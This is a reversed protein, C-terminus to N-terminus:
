RIAKRFLEVVESSLVGKEILVKFLDQNIKMGKEIDTSSFEISEVGIATLAELAEKNEAITQDSTEQMAKQVIESVTVQDEASIKDWEKKSVLFAGISYTVPYNVIYKIKSNWQLALIGMPSNYAAEIIGTSLSPLVDPLALPVSILQLQEVMAQAVKDGEWSWVKVGQLEKISSIKKTSVLYIKGIEFFGLNKFGNEEIGKNLFPGLKQLAKKFLNRNHQFNFPVELVRIDSYIDGLARGTFISGSLQGIRVKRLVDPEDGQVGGYYVKLKVRSSTQKDVAAAIDQMKDAWTTGEPALTAIKLTKSQAISVFFLILLLYKM